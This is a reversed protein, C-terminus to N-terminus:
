KAIQKRFEGRRPWKSGIALGRKVLQRCAQLAEWPVIDLQEAMAEYSIFRDEPLIRLVDDELIQSVSWDESESTEWGSCWYIHSNWIIFHSGCATDRWYSPYLSLGHQNRYYRWAAGARRDLNILLDDGCGCPCRIILLRPKGREVIVADGSNKLLTGAIDRYEVKGQFTIKYAHSKM